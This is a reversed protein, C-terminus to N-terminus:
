FAYYLYLLFKGRDLDMISLQFSVIEDTSFQSVCGKRDDESCATVGKITTCGCAFTRAKAMKDSNDADTGGDSPADGADSQM